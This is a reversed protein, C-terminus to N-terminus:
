PLSSPIPDACRDRNDARLLFLKHAANGSHDMAPSASLDSALHQRHELRHLMAARVRCSKSKVARGLAVTQDHAELDRFLFLHPPPEGNMVLDRAAAGADVFPERLETCRDLIRFADGFVGEAIVELVVAVQAAEGIVDLIDLSRFDQRKATGELQDLIEAICRPYPLLIMPVCAM